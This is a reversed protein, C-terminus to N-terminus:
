IFVRSIQHIEKRVTISSFNLFKRTEQELVKNSHLHLALARFLCLNDNYPQLMNKEFTICNVNHNELLPESFVTDRCGMPVDNLLSAFITLNTLKYSNWM